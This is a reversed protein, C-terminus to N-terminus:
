QSAPSSLSPPAGRRPMDLPNAVTAADDAATATIDIGESRCLDLLEARDDLEEVAVVYGEVEEATYMGPMNYHDVLLGRLQVVTLSCNTQKHEGTLTNASLQASMSNALRGRPRIHHLETAEAQGRCEGLGDHIQRVGHACTYGSWVFYTSDANQLLPRLHLGTTGM